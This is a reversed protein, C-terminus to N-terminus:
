GNLVMRSRRSIVHPDKMPYKSSLKTLHDMFTYFAARNNEELQKKTSDSLECNYTYSDTEKDWRILDNAYINNEFEDFVIESLRTVRKEGTELKQMVVVMKISQLASILHGKLSGGIQSYVAIAGQYPIDEADVTHFTGALNDYGKSGAWIYFEWEYHRMETMFIIDPDMRLSEIGVTMLDEHLAMVPIIRHGEIVYPLLSEPHKEILVLGLSSRSQKLTEGVYTNAFTSKGSGVPGAVITNLKLQSFAIWLNITETPISGTGAQDEYDLYEVIQRRLSITTFDEWTRPYVWMAIRIFRGPWLPDNIKFEEAPKSKDAKAREDSSLLTRKLQEVRDLSTMRHPYPQFQGKHNFFINKGIIQLGSSNSFQKKTIWPYAPGFGKWEHFLGEVASDYAAPLKGRFPNIRLYKEIDHYFYSVAEPDGALAKQNLELYRNDKSKENIFYEDMENIFQYFNSSQNLSHQKHILENLSFM